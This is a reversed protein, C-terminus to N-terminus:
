LEFLGDPPDITVVAPTSDTDVKVIFVAPVLAGSDLEVLDSAPNDIMAVCRGRRRGDTDIVEAGIVQHVWIEDPDDIPEAYVTEGTLTEAQSRDDIGSLHIRWRHAAPSSREITHWQGAISLRQGVQAREVRDTSLSLFLDGRVGHPRGITGVDLLDAM